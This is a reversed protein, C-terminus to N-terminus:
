LRLFEGKKDILLFLYGIGSIFLSSNLDMNMNKQYMPFYENRNNDYLMFGKAPSNYFSFRPENQRLHLNNLSSLNFTHSSNFSQLTYHEPNHKNTRAKSTSDKQSYCFIVSGFLLLILSSVKFTTKM